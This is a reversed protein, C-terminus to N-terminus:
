KRRMETGSELAAKGGTPRAIVSSCGKCVVVSSAHSFVTQISYCGPCKVDNFYSNPSPILRKMKHKRLEAEETPRALDVVAM